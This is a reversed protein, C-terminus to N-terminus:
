VIGLALLEELQALKITLTQCHGIDTPMVITIEDGKIKKDSAAAKALTSATFPCNLELGFSLLLKKIRLESEPSLIGKIRSIRAMVAIGIGVAKGHSIQYNSCKEIAHAVTHGLNLLYRQNSEYEDAEVIGKKVTLARYVCDEIISGLGNKGATELNEFLKSDGIIATKIMEAIGNVIEPGPLTELVKSDFFVGSPQWVTGVLNKGSDLNIATKGGICSDVAALLTTPVQIYRIGRQYISAAFGTLDGIVGGGLAILFDTKTFNQKALYNTLNALDDFSKTSESSPFVVKHPYLNVLHLGRELIKTYLPHVNEDTVICIKTGAKVNEFTQGIQDLIRREIIVKYPKSTNITLEM